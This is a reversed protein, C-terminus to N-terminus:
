TTKLTFFYPDSKVSLFENQPFLLFFFFFFWGLFPNKPTQLFNLRIINKKTTCLAANNDKHYQSFGINFFDPEQTILSFLQYIIYLIYCLTCQPIVGGGGEFVGGVEEEGLGGEGEGWVSCGGRKQCNGGIYQNKAFGRRQFDSKETFVLLM